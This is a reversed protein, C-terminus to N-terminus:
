EAVDEANQADIAAILKEIIGPADSAKYEEALADIQKNFTNIAANHKIAREGVWKEYGAQTILGVDLEKKYEATYDAFSRVEARIEQMITARRKNNKGDGEHTKTLLKLLDYIENCDALDTGTSGHILGEIRFGDDHDAGDIIREVQEILHATTDAHITRDRDYWSSCCGCNYGNGTAYKFFYITM